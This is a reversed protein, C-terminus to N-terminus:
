NAAGVANGSVTLSGNGASATHPQCEATLFTELVKKRFPLFTGTLAPSKRSHEDIQTFGNSEPWTM